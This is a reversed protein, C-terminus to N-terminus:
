GRVYLPAQDTGECRKMYGPVDFKSVPPLYSVYRRHPRMVGDTVKREQRCEPCRGWGTRSRDLLGATM